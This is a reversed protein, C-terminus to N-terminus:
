SDTSNAIGKKRARTAFAPPTQGCHKPWAPSIDTHHLPCTSSMALQNLWFHSGGKPALQYWLSSPGTCPEGFEELPLKFIIYIIEQSNKLDETQGKRRSVEPRRWSWTCRSSAPGSHPRRPPRLRRRSSAQGRSCWWLPSRVLQELLGLPYITSCAGKRDRFDGM